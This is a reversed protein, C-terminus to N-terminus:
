KGNMTFGKVSNMMTMIMLIFMQQLMDDELNPTSGLVSEEAAPVNSLTPRPVIVTRGGGGRVVDSYLIAM